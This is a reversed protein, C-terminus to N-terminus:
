ARGFAWAEEEKTARIRTDDAGSGSGTGARPGRRQMSMSGPHSPGTEEV